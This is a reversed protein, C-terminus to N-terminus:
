CSLLSHIDDKSNMGKIQFRGEKFEEKMDQRENM